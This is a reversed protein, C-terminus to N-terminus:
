NKRNKKKDLYRSRFSERNSKKVKSSKRFFFYVALLVALIILIKILSDDFTITINLFKM